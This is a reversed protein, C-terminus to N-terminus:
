FFLGLFRRKKAGKGTKKVVVPESAYSGVNMRNYATVVYTYYEGATVNKDEFIWRDNNVPTITLLNYPDRFDGVLDGKFRYVAFYYPMDEGTKVDCTSWALSVTSPTAKTACITPTAPPLESRYAMGPVLAPRSYLAYRLTDTVGLPNKLLQKASYFISGQVNPNRRNLAIQRSIQDRANWNPDNTGQGVKYAAHGIYLHRGYSHKSWWDVLTQYDAPQFGITWYLQPAIYDIWDNKLWLLVDAYLDDYCTLGARTNSGNQPDKAINRWVGFPSIGFKVYPKISKIKKSVSQILQNVNDRRWDEITAFGRPSAAFDGYDALSEGAEPYPYFYDDFHIGDVDYKVLIEQVVDTLYSVVSPNGPNFYYKKGYRFFWRNAEEPALARLLHDPALANLDLDTTARYPNLWAHFELHRAHAARVMYDLPDYMPSPALGQAGTLYRSWPALRSPYFADGAPRVQVFVANLGTRQLVNFLSDIEAKQSDASLGPKSPWDINAVTAIWAGRMEAAPQALLNQAFIQLALLCALSLTRATM